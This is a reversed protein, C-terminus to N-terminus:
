VTRLAIAMETNKQQEIRIAGSLCQSCQKRRLRWLNCLRVLAGRVAAKNGSSENYVLVRGQFNTTHLKWLPWFQKLSFSGSVISQFSAVGGKGWAVCLSGDLRM